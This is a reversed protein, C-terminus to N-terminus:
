ETKPPENQSGFLKHQIYGGVVQNLLKIQENKLRKMEKINDSVEKAKAYEEPTLFYILPPNSMMKRELTKDHPLIEGDVIYYPTYGARVLSKFKNHDHGGHFIREHIENIPKKVPTDIFKLTM